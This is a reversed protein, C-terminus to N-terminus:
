YSFSKRGGAAREEMQVCGELIQYSGGGFEAVETCHRRIGQVINEWRPRLKNYASQELQICGNYISHSGGAFQAVNECHAEADFRPLEQAAVPLSLAFALSSAVIYRM